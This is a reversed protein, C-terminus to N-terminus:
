QAQSASAALTVFILIHQETESHTLFCFLQHVLNFAERGGLEPRTSGGSNNYYDSDAYISSLLVNETEETNAILNIFSCSNANM